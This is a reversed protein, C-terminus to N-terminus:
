TATLLDLLWPVRGHLPSVFHSSSLTFVFQRKMRGGAVSQSRLENREQPLRLRGEHLTQPVSGRCHKVARGLSASSTQYSSALVNHGALEISPRSTQLTASLQVARAQGDPLDPM